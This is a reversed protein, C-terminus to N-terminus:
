VRKLAPLAITALLLAVLLTHFGVQLKQSFHSAIIELAFFVAPILVCLLLVLLIIDVPQSREAVFFPVSKALVEFLPQAIALNFLISFIFHDVQYGTLPM